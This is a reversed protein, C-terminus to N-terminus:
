DEAGGGGDGGGRSRRAEGRREETLARERCPLRRWRLSGQKNRMNYLGAHMGKTKMLLRSGRPHIYYKLRESKRRSMERM